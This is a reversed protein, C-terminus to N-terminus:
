GSAARAPSASQALQTASTVAACLVVIGAFYYYNCFAQKATAFLALLAAAAVLAFGCRGRPAVRWAWVYAAVCAIPGLVVAHWGTVFAIVPAISLSDMRFPQHLQFAVVDNWLERPDVIALPLTLAAAIALAAVVTARSAAGFRSSWALPL